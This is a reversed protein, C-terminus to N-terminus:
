RMCLVAVLVEDSVELKATKMRCAKLQTESQSLAMECDKLGDTLIKIHDKKDQNDMTYKALKRKLTGIILNKESVINTIQFNSLM